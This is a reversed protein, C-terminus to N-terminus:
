SQGENPKPSPLRSVTAATANPSACADTVKEKKNEEEADDDDDQQASRQQEDQTQSCLCNHTTKCYDGKEANM